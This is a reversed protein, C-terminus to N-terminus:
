EFLNGVEEFSSVLSAVDKKFLVQVGPVQEHHHTDKKTIASIYEKFEQTIKTLEPGAVMCVLLTGPSETLSVAGGDGKVLANAQEHAHDLATSSFAQPSKHLVFAGECFQQFAKPHKNPDYPACTGPM